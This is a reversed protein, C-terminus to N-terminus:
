KKCKIITALNYGFCITITKNYTTCLILHASSFRLKEFRVAIKDSRNSSSRLLNLTLDAVFIINVHM